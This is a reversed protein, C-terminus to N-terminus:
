GCYVLYLNKLVHAYTYVHKTSLVVHSIYSLLTSGLLMTQKRNRNIPVTDTQLYRPGGGERNASEEHNRGQPVALGKKICSYLQFTFFTSIASISRGSSASKEYM